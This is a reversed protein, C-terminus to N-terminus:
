EVDFQVVMQVAALQIQSQRFFLFYPWWGRFSVKSKLPKFPSTFAWVLLLLRMFNWNQYFIEKDM